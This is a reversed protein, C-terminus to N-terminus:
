TGPPAGRLASIHLGRDRRFVPISPKKRTPSVRSIPRNARMRGVDSNAAAEDLRRAVADLDDDFLDAYVDLTMAASKHGLMKQLVKINAGISM